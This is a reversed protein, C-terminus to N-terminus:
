DKALLHSCPDGDFLNGTELLRRSKEVADDRRATRSAQRRPRGIDEPDSLEFVPLDHRPVALTLSSRPQHTPNFM